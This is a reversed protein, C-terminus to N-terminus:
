QGMECEPWQGMEYEPMNLVAALLIELIGQNIRDLHIIASLRGNQIKDVQFKELHM